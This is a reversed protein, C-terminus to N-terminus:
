RLYAKCRQVVRVPLFRYHQLYRISFSTVIDLLHKICVIIIEVAYTLPGSACYFAIEGNNSRTPVAAQGGPSWIILDGVLETQIMPLIKTLSSDYMGLTSASCLCKVRVGSLWYPFGYTAGCFSVSASKLSATAEGLACSLMRNKSSSCIARFILGAGALSAARYVNIHSNKLFIDLM